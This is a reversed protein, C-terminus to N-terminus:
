WRRGPSWRLLWCPKPRRPHATARRRMEVAAPLPLLSCLPVAYMGHSAKGHKQCLSNASSRARGRVELGVTSIVKSALEPINPALAPLVETAHVGEGFADSTDKQIDIDGTLSVRVSHGVHAYGMLRPVTSVADNGNIIRWANPVM